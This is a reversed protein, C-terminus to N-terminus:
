PASLFTLAIDGYTRTQGDDIPDSARHEVGLIGAFPTDRFLAALAAAHPGSYPPDAFAIDFAGIPLRRAFKMADIRHVKAREEVGLTAINAQLVTLAPRAIEVFEARAAGRSLAELGLAGSGAFLDLVTAGELSGALINFWAERV